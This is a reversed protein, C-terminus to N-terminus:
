ASNEEGYCIELTSCNKVEKEKREKGKEEKEGWKRQMTENGGKKDGEKGQFNGSKKEGGGRLPPPFFTLNYEGAVTIIPRM